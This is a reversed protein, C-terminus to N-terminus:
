SNFGFRNIRNSGMTMYIFPFRKSLFFVYITYQITTYPLYKVNRSTTWLSKQGSIFYFNYLTTICYMSSLQCTNTALIKVINPLLSVHSLPYHKSARGRCCQLKWNKYIKLIPTFPLTPFSTPKLCTIHHGAYKLRLNASQNGATYRRRRRMHRFPFYKM